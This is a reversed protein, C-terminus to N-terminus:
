RVRNRIEQFHVAKIPVGTLSTDTYAGSTLGLAGLAADLASRIETVHVAKVTTGASAADTFGAASLAALSRVANVAIRMQSLHVAQVSVGAALPENTFVVTTALDSASDGSTGSTNSARVRYLYATNASVNDMLSTTAPSSILTFAVGPARRYVQYSTAGSSANWSVNVVTSSQALATVGTPVNPANNYTFAGSLTASQFDPNTVVLDVAGASHPPTTATITTANVVVVNTAAAGGFTVTAGSQFAAGTITVASGGAINGSGPSVTAVTPAPAFSLMYLGTETAAIVRRGPTVALANIYPSGGLGVNAPSWSEGGDRSFWYGNGAGLHILNPDQPDVLISLFGAGGGFTPSVGALGNNKPTWMSGSDFSKFVGKDFTSAYVVLTNTPDIALSRVAGGGTIQRNLWSVAGNISKALNPTGNAGV